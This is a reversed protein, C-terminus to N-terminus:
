TTYGSTSIPGVVESITAGTPTTGTVTFTHTTDATTILVRRPNDLTAVAGTVTSGNLTLAGAAGPTQSLAINNASASALPGVTAVVTRMRRSGFHFSGRSAAREDMM